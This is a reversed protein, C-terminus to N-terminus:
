LCAADILNTDWCHWDTDSYHKEDKVRGNDDVSNWEISTLNDEGKDYINYFRDYTGDTMSKYFIYGGNESDGPIINTYKIDGTEEDHNRHWEIGVFPTPNDSNNNLTWTGKTTELNHQGTYWLLDDYEGEKSLYMKWQVQKNVVKGNLRANYIAGVVVSYTWEWSGDTQLVAQHNFAEVFSAVPVALGVTLISNWLGVSLASYQWTSLLPKQFNLNKEFFPKSNTFENFEMVFTSQPPLGPANQNQPTSPTFSFDFAGDWNIGDPYVTNLYIPNAIADSRWDMPDAGQNPEQDDFGDKFIANLLGTCDNGIDVCKSGTFYDSDLELASVILDLSPDFPIWSGGTQSTTRSGRYESSTIIKKIYEWDQDDDFFYVDNKTSLYNGLHNGTNLELPLSLNQLEAVAAGNGFSDSVTYMQLDPVETIDDVPLFQAKMNMLGRALFVKGFNNVTLDKTVEIRLGDAWENNDDFRLFMDAVKETDNYNFDMRMMVPDDTKYNDPNMNLIDIIMRGEISNNDGNNWSIYFQPDEGELPPVDRSYGYYLRITTQTNSDDTVSYHTPDEPDYTPNSKDNDAEVITGSHEIVDAFDILLDGICTWAAVASVMFKTMQYGNRFPDDDDVGIFSCPQGIGTSSYLAKNKTKSATSGGGTLSNPLQLDLAFTKTKTESNKNDTSKGCGLLLLSGILVVVLPRSLITVKKTM